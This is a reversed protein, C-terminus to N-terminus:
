FVGRIGVYVTINTVKVPVQENVFNTFKIHHYNVWWPPNLASLFIVRLKHEGVALKGELVVGHTIVLYFLERKM